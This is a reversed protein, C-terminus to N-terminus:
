LTKDENDIAREAKGYFPTTRCLPPSWFVATKTTAPIVVSYILDITNLLAIDPTTAGALM